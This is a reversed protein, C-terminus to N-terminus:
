RKPGLHFWSSRQTFVAWATANWDSSWLMNLCPRSDGKDLCLLYIFSGTHLKMLRKKVWDCLWGEPCGGEAREPHAGSASPGAPTWQICPFWCPHRWCAAPTWPFSVQDLIDDLFLMCMDRCFTSHLSHFLTHTKNSCKALTHPCTNSLADKEKHQGWGNM